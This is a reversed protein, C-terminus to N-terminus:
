AARANAETGQSVSDTAVKGVTRPKDFSSGATSGSTRPSTQGVSGAWRGSGALRTPARVAPVPPSTPCRLDRGSEAVGPMSVLAAAAGLALSGLDRRRLAPPDQKVQRFM